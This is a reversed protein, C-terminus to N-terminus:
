HLSPITLALRRRASPWLKEVEADGQVYIYPQSPLGGDALVTIPLLFLLSTLPLKM